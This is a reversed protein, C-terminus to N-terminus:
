QKGKKTACISELAEIDALDQKRGAKLKMAILTDISVIPITKSFAQISVIQKSKLNETLVIDVIESPRSPNVFSWAILNRKDIYEKRFQFIEEAKVPIRSILGLEQTLAAECNRLNQQTLTIVIDIDLTGRVAGHLALAQGGCLAFDVKAAQLAEIVKLIFM